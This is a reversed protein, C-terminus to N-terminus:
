PMVASWTCFAVSSRTAFRSRRLVDAPLDLLGHRSLLQVMADKGEPSAATYIRSGPDPFPLPNKRMALLFTWVAFAVILLGMPVLLWLPIFM